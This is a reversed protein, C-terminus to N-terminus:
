GSIHNNARGGPINVEGAGEYGGSTEGGPRGPPYVAQGPKRPLMLPSRGVANQPVIVEVFATYNSDANLFGDEVLEAPAAVNRFLCFAFFTSNKGFYKQLKSSRTKHSIQEFYVLCAM